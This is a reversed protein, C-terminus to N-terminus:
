LIKHLMVEVMYAWHIQLKKIWCLKQISLLKQTDAGALVNVGNEILEM